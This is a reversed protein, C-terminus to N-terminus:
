EKREIGRTMRQRVHEETGDDEALDAAAARCRADRLCCGRVTGEPARAAGGAGDFFVDSLPLPRALLVTRACLTSALCAAAALRCMVRCVLSLLAWAEYFVSNM